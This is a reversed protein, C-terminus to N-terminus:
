ADNTRASADALRGISRAIEYLAISGAVAANLSEARRRQPIGIRLDVDSAPIDALGHREHGIVLATRSPVTVSRVDPAGAEAAVIKVGASRAAQVFDRWEEYLILPLHFLSGMSARVVKDNYPDVGASGCCVASAGLAEASRILTGANGPDGIDHLVAILCPDDARGAADALESIDRHFYRAVAVIGQPEKTPALARMTREDVRVVHRGAAEAAAAAADSRQQGPRHFVVDIEVGDAHLAADVATPGDILFCRREQRHKKLHLARAARVLGHHFGADADSPV